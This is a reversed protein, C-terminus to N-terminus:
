FHHLVWRSVDSLKGHEAVPAVNSLETACGTTLSLWVLAALVAGPASQVALAGTRQENASLVM